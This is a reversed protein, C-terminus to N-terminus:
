LNLFINKKHVYVKEKKDLYRWYRMYVQPIKHQYKHTEINKDGM